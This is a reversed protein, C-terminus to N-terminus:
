VIVMRGYRTRGIFRRWYCNVPVEMGAVSLLGDGNAPRHKEFDFEGSRRGNGGCVAFGGRDYVSTSAGEAGFIDAGPYDSVDADPGVGRVSAREEPM